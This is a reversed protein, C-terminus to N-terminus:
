ISVHAILGYRVASRRHGVLVLFEQITGIGPCQSNEGLKQLGEGVKAPFPNPVRDNKKAGGADLLVVVRQAAIVM